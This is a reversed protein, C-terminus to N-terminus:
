PSFIRLVTRGGQMALEESKVPQGRDVVEQIRAAAQDPHLYANKIKEVMTRSDLGAVDTPANALGFYSCFGPNAFEVRGENSVLLVASNM